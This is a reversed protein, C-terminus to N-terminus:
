KLSFKSLPVEDNKWRIPGLEEVRYRLIRLDGPFFRVECEDPNWDAKCGKKAALQLISIQDPSIKSFIEYPAVFGIMPSCLIMDMEDDHFAMGFNEDVVSEISQVMQYVDPGSKFVNDIRRSQKSILDMWTSQHRLSELVESEEPYVGFIKLAGLLETAGDLFTNEDEEADMADQELTSLWSEYGEPFQLWRLVAKALESPKMEGRVARVVSRMGGWLAMARDLDFVTSVQDPGHRESGGLGQIGALQRRSKLTPNNELTQLQTTVHFIGVDESAAYSPELSTGVVWEGPDMCFAIETM